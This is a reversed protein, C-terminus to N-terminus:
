VAPQEAAAYLATITQVTALSDYLWPRLSHGREISDFFYTLQDHYPQFVDTAGRIMRPEAEGSTWLRLPYEPRHGSPSFGFLTELRAIGQTGTLHLYTQDYPVACAWSVEVLVDLPGDFIAFGHASIEVDSVGAREVNIPAYWDAQAGPALSRDVVCCARRLHRQGGLWIALDLMHSGLDTLVGGGSEARNTFWTNAGPVGSRRLWGCRIARIEGLLGAQIAQQLAIVEPRFRNTFAIMLERGAREAAAVMAEAQDLRTAMPKECLVHCGANLAAISMQAHLHNPCAILVVDLDLDFLEETNGCAIPVGYREALAQARARDPDCLAVVAVQPMALLFPLHVREVIRGAGIVGVRWRHQPKETSL